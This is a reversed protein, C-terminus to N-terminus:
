NLTKRSKKYTRVVSPSELDDWTVEWSLKRQSVEGSLRRRGGFKIREGAAHRSACKTRTSSTSRTAGPCSYSDNEQMSEGVLDIRMRSGATYLEKINM